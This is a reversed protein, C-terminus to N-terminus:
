GPLASSPLASMARSRAGLLGDSLQFTAGLRGEPVFVEFYGHPNDPRVTRLLPLGDRWLEVARGRRRGLSAGWIRVYGGGARVVMIPMRFSSLALKPSGDQYRLGSFWAPDDNLLYQAFSAIGPTRWQLYEAMNLEFAQATAGLLPRRIPHSQFGAETNYVPLDRPLRGREGLAAVLDVPRSPDAPTWLDEGEPFLLAAATGAGASYFHNALGDTDLPRYRDCGRVRAAGQRFPELGADVCTLERVFLGPAMSALPAAVAAGVSMTEGFYIRRQGGATRRLARASLRYLRRYIVPSWPILREGVRRWQPRLFARGNPENWLSWEHVAPLPQAGPHPRFGGSYRRGLAAVFRAFAAADPAGSRKRAWRPLHLHTGRLGSASAPDLILGIGRQRAELVLSDLMAWADASYAASRPSATNRPRARRNPHALMSRWWVVARVKDAGLAKIEDLARLQAQHGFELLRHEDELILSQQTGARAPPALVAVVLLLALALALAGAAAPSPKVATGRSPLRM